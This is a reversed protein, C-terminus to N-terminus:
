LRQHLRDSASRQRDSSAVRPSRMSTADGQARDLQYKTEIQVVLDDKNKLAAIDQSNFKVQIESRM